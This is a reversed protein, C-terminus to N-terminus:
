DLGGQKGWWETDQRFDGLRDLEEYVHEVFVRPLRLHHDTLYHALGDPWYWTGDTLELAGNAKGCFRCPSLGGFARFIFGGQLYQVVTEREHLDWDPDVFNAPDPWQPSTPGRWYGILRLTGEEAPVM